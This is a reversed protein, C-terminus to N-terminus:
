GSPSRKSRGARAPASVKRRKETMVAGDVRRAAHLEGRAGGPRRLPRGCRVRVARRSRRRLDPAAAPRRHAPDAGPAPLQRDDRLLAAWILFVTGWVGGHQTYVWIVAAVLIPMPGIQAVALIFALATLIATFPVGAVALGIGVLGSQVLATVVVGLAVARTAQAALRIAKAGQAGALREAFREGGRGATEGTTYLIATLLVTLFFQVLVAGISGIEAVLWRAIDRAYPTVRAALGESGESALERWEDAVKAGVLPLGSSGTPPQPMTWSALSQSLSAIDDASEVVASIGLYLPIM